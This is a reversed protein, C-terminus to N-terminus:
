KNDRKTALDDGSVPGIEGPKLSRADRTDYKVNLAGQEGQSKRRAPNTISSEEKMQEIYRKTLGWQDEGKRYIPM